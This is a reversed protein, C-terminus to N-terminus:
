KLSKIKEWAESPFEPPFSSLLIPTDSTPVIVKVREDKRNEEWMKGNFHRAESFDRFEKFTLFDAAFATLEGFFQVMGSNKIGSPKLAPLIKDKKKEYSDIYKLTWKKYDDVREIGWVINLGERKAKNTYEKLSIMKEESPFNAGCEELFARVILRDIKGIKGTETFNNIWRNFQSNLDKREKNETM